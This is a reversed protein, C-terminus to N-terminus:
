RVSVRVPGTKARAEPEYYAYAVSAPALASVRTTARLGFAFRRSSAAPLRDLYVIVASPELSYRHLRGDRVLRDLDSTEVDFGPPVGIELTPMNMADNRKWGLEVRCELRQGVAVSASSYAVRLSLADSEGARGKGAWPLHHVSALQYSIDAGATGDLEVLNEGPRVNETLELVQHVDRKGQKLRLQGADAGNVRVKVLQDGSEVRKAGDLLARLAAVTAGSSAWAGAGNRRLLLWAHAEARLEPERDLKAFLHAVLATVEVRLAEGYSFMVGQRESKWHARGDGREVLTALRAAVKSAADRHGGSWLANGFLALDYADTAAEQGELIALARELGEGKAGSEALAWAVYATTALASSPSASRTPSPSPWSGDDRQSALLFRRTREILQPDVPRVKSMDSLGVLGYASLTVDGSETGFWSFGGSPVEFTLLRQYGDDIFARAKAEIEPSQLKARRLFDLVLVNPYTASSTQEFCGHPRQLVGDLSESLQSLVGGYVKLRVQTGGAVANPPVTLALRTAQSLTGSAIQEVPQGDPKVSIKKEVADALSTGSAHVRVIREGASAARVAFPVGRVAGPGLELSLESKGTVAFGEADLRLKVTQARDAYNFVTVPLAIEDGQTLVAPASLDVFFDQRVVLPLTVSGLNGAETVASIGLRYTAIADALPLDIQARGSGDTVLEPVWALTEPFYSRVRAAQIFKPNDAPGSVAHRGGGPSSSGEEGKARVGIGGERQAAADRINGYHEGEQHIQRADERIVLGLAVLTVPLGFLASRSAFVWAFHRPTGMFLAAQRAVSLAGLAVQWLALVGLCLEPFRGPERFWGATWLGDSGLVAAAALHAFLFGVPLFWLVRALAPQAQGVYSRAVRRLTFWQWGTAGLACAMFILASTWEANLRGLTPRPYLSRSIGLAFVPLLAGAGLAVLAHATVALWADHDLSGVGVVEPARTRRVGYAIFGLLFAAGIGLSTVAAVGGLGHARRQAQRAVREVKWEVRRPTSTAFAKSLAALAVAKVDKPTEGTDLVGPEEPSVRLTDVFGVSRGYGRRGIQFYRRELDPRLDALAFFAEDVASVALTASVPEGSATRVAFELKASTAPAYAARDLKAEINLDAGAILAVRGGELLEGRGFALAEIQVLGRATAPVDLSTVAVGGQLRGQSTALPRGNRWLGVVVDADHEPAALVTVTARQGARLEPGETRVLLQAPDRQSQPNRLVFSDGRAGKWDTTSFVWEPTGLSFRLPITAIGLQNTTVSKGGPEVTVESSVPRGASDSTVVFIDNDVGSVWDGNEPLAEVRVSRADEAVHAKGELVMGDHTVRASLPGRARKPLEFDLKGRADTKGRLLAPSDPSGLHLTVDAGVLPAGFSWTAAVTGRPATPEGEPMPELEIAVKAKPLAYRKVEVTRQELVRDGSAKIVYAGLKVESALAFSAHAVGHASRGVSQRFVTAGSPEAVEFTIQGGGVPRDDGGLTLTRFRLTQGPQYWPKDTSLFTAALSDESFYLEVRTGEGRDPLWAVIQRSGEAFETPLKAEALWQGSADTRGESLPREAKGVAFLLQVRENALGSRTALDRAHIRLHVKGGPFGTAAGDVALVPVVGPEGRLPGRLAAFFWAGLAVLGVAALGWFRSDLWPLDREVPRPGM